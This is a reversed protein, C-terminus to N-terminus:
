SLLAADIANFQCFIADTSTNETRSNAFSVDLRSPFIYKLRAVTIFGPDRCSTFTQHRGPNRKYYPCAFRLERIAQKGSLKPDPRRRKHSDDGDDPPPTSGGSLSRKRSVFSSSSYTSSGSSGAYYGGQGTSGTGGSGHHTRMMKDFIRHFEQMLREVVQQKLPSLMPRLNEADTMSAPSGADETWDTEEESSRAVEDHSSTLSLCRSSATLEAIDKSETDTEVSNEKHDALLASKSLYSDLSRSPLRIDSAIRSTSNSSSSCSSFIEQDAESKLNRHSPKHSHNHQQAVSDRTVQRLACGRLHDYFGQADFPESCLGCTAVEQGNLPKRSSKGNRYHEDRRVSPVPEADHANVLHKLFLDCRNFTRQASDITEPCFGCVMVERFHTITHRVRDYARAFGKLHYECSEVPCKEPREAQHTLLHTALDRLTRGCGPYSCVGKESLDLTDRKFSRTSRTSSNRSSITSGTALSPCDSERLHEVIGSDKLFSWDPIHSLADPLEEDDDTFNSHDTDSPLLLDARKHAKVTHLSQHHLLNQWCDAVLFIQM